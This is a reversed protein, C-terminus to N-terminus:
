VAEPLDDDVDPLAVYGCRDCVRLTAENVSEIRAGSFTLDNGQPDTLTSWNTGDNSGQVAVTAGGFTGTVQVSRDTYQSFPLADGTEGQALTWSAAYSKSNETPIPTYTTPM